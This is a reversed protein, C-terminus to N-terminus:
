VKELTESGLGQLFLLFQTVDIEYMVRSSPLPRKFPM